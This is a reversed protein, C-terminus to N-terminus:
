QVEKWNVLTVGRATRNYQVDVTRKYKTNQTTARLTRPNSSGSITITCSGEPRTITGGAYSSSARVKLLGDEACGEVFGLTDDGLTLAFSAQGEGIGVLSSTAAIALVVVSVLLVLTVAIYGQKTKM